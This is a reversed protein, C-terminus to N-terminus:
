SRVPNATEQRRYSGEGTKTGTSMLSNPFLGRPTDSPPACNAFAHDNTPGVLDLRLAEVLRARVQESTQPTACM